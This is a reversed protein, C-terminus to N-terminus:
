QASKSRVPRPTPPAVHQFLEVPWRELRVMGKPVAQQFQVYAEVKGKITYLPSGEGEESFVKFGMLQCDELDVKYREGDNPTRIIGTSPRGHPQSFNWVILRCNKLSLYTFGDYKGYFNDIANDPSVFTCDEFYVDPKEPMRKNVSKVFGAGADGWYDLCVAHVRRFVIPEESRPIADVIGVGFARGISVCDEVIVTFPEAKLPSLDWFLGADAGTVYLDRLIWRDWDASSTSQGTHKSTWGKKHARITTFWDYCKYGKDSSDIIVTGTLGSGFKGDVDGLLENYAGAAGRRNPHLNAEMYTGPAVVVRHGGQDDPIMNLAKLVSRYATQWTKGDSDDGTTSVHITEASVFSLFCTWLLITTIAKTIMHKMMTM